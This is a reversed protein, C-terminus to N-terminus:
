LKGEDVEWRNQAKTIVYNRDSDWWSLSISRQRDSEDSLTGSVDEEGDYTM